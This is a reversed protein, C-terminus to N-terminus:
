SQLMRIVKVFSEFTVRYPSVLLKLTSLSLNEREKINVNEIGYSPQSLSLCNWKVSTNCSAESGCVCNEHFCLHSIISLPDLNRSLQSRVFNSLHSISRCLSAHCTVSCGLKRLTYRRFIQVFHFYLQLLKVKQVWLPSPLSKEVTLGTGYM